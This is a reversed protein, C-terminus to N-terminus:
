KIKLYNFTDAIGIEVCKGSVSYKLEKMMKEHSVTELMMRYKERLDPERTASGSM